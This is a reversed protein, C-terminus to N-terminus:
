RGALRELAALVAKFSATIISPDIGVAWASEGTRSVCVYAAARADAGAGLAHEHYDDITLEYGVANLAHVFADLPGSGTATLQQVSGGIEVTVDVKHESPGTQEFRSTLLKISPNENRMFERTFIDWLAESTIEGGDKDAIPQIFRALEM